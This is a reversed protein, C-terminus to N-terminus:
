VSIIHLCRQFALNVGNDELYERGLVREVVECLKIRAYGLLESAINGYQAPSRLLEAVVNDIAIVADLSQTTGTMTLKLPRPPEDCKTGECLHRSWTRVAASEGSVYRRSVMECTFGDMPRMNAM